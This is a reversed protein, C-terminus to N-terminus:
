SPKFPFCLRLGEELRRPRYNLVRAASDSASAKQCLLRPIQDPVVTHINLANLLGALGKVLSLPLFLKKVRVGFCEAVRDILAVCTMEEPGALTFTKGPADKQLVAEVTASVVDEIFVPSLGYNGDGIVPVMPYKRVWHILQNIGERGGTGYVERPRLIVWPLGSAKVHEEAKLKSESYAGGEPHAAGSSMFIFRQVNNRACVRILNQTGEANVRLYDDRRHSHTMAALHVVTDIGAVAKELSDADQLSGRVPQCGPFDWPARHILTRIAIDGRGLLQPILKRGFGGSAGTVLINM